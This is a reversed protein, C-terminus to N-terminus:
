APRRQGRRAKYGVESHLVSVDRHSLHRVPDGHPLVNPQQPGLPFSFLPLANLSLWCLPALVRWTGREIM